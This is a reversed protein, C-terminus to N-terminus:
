FLPKIEGTEKDITETVVEEDKVEISDIDITEQNANESIEQKVKTDTNDLDNQMMRHFHEDIKEADINICNWCARKVTKFAMEDYWGDIIEKGDKKGNTYKDKEGGWFEASAYQPKRKEIDKRSLVVLKNKEPNDNFVHYYFGGKLDGREFEDTVEFKYSEVPNNVDKKIQKFVDTSYVLEIVVSDPVDYGYKKAKIELGNYGEMFAIDFKGTHKNKFCILNIHNSQLPDLGVSAYAMVDVSLKQMNVNNWTFELADRYQESKALRKTENDKLTADLKIFYNQILKRQFSSVELSGANSSFEKEVMQTFRESHSPQKIAIENKQKVVVGTEKKETSM